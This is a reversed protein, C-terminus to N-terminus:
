KKPSDIVTDRPAQKKALQAHAAELETQLRAIRIGNEEALKRATDGVLKIEEVADQQARRTKELEEQLRINEAKLQNVEISDGADAGRGYPVVALHPDAQLAALDKPSIEDSLTVIKKGDRDLEVHPPKPDDVVKVITPEKSWARGARRRYVHGPAPIARVAFLHERPQQQPQPQKANM